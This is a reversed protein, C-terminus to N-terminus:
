VQAVNSSCYVCVVVVVTKRDKSWSFRTGSFSRREGNRSKKTVDPQKISREQERLLWVSLVSLVRVDRGWIKHWIDRTERGEWNVWTQSQGVTHQIIYEACGVTLFLNIHIACVWAVCTGWHYLGTICTHNILTCTNSICSHTSYYVAHCYLRSMRPHSHILWIGFTWSVPWWSWAWLFMSPKANCWHAVVTARCAIVICM